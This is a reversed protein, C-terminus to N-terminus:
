VDPAMVRVSDNRESSCGSSNMSTDGRIAASRPSTCPSHHWTTVLRAATCALTVTVSRIRGRRTWPLTTCWTQIGYWKPPPPSTRPSTM